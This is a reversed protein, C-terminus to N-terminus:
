EIVEVTLDRSDARGHDDVVRVVFNGPKPKWYFTEGSRAKGLFREDLFWYVERSDADTTAMLPLKEGTKQSARVTYTVRREPSKIKPPLGTEAVVDLSCGSAHPPPTRRPIGAERFIKLIDSPWFEYVEARTSIRNENCTRLGTRADVIVKRHIDCVGIPSTGPIFLTKVRHDCYPGPLQGSVVCVEVEKIGPPNGRYVYDVGRSKLADVMQFLLPGAAERGIFAPNGEGDFNGVWVALVYPGFVGISWADRFGFSTGTKWHVPISSATWDEPFARGPRPNDKLIDMVLYASEPSLIRKGEGDIEGALKRIPKLVGRNALMAYLEVIEEMTLEAGGMALALGYFSEDRLHEIGASKLFGHLGPGELSAAVELAPLNRSRVLAERVMIPGVFKHDFNEPSYAGFSKRADRLISMPHIIGQEFGLAYILPKITSGPSRLAQTGNVQGDISDDFFDASGLVAKAEMTRYDVLLASVNRIGTDKKREVYSRANRELLRQLGLDLSTFLESKRPNDGLIDDVFHPALFPLESPSRMVIPLAFLERQGEAEPHEELWKEFLANRADFLPDTEGAARGPMRRGPSQPIVSLALAEELTLDSARHGFYVLSAAGAGEINLGYPALNLYAELIEDKSYNLELQLARLIQTIKGAITRSNIGYRIRALQMTITSGGIRRDGVIYTEWAARAISAPNVGPHWRFHRDEHLLTADALLPSMKDLPLWLRYKDDASLTLRLLSGGSDYVAQSFSLGDKLPPKPVVLLLFCFAALILVAAKRLRRM